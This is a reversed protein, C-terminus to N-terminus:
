ARVLRFTQSLGFLGDGNPHVDPRALLKDASQASIEGIRPSLGPAAIFYWSRGGRTNTYGFVSKPHHLIDLVRDFSTTRAM